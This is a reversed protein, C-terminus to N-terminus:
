AAYGHMRDRLRARRAASRKPLMAEHDDEMEEWLAERASPQPQPEPENCSSDSEDSLSEEPRKDVERSFSVRLPAGGRSYRRRPTRPQRLASALPAKVRNAGESRARPKEVEGPVRDVWEVRGLAGRDGDDGGLLAGLAAAAGAAAGAMALRLKEAVEGALNEEAKSEAGKGPQSAQSGGAAAPGGLLLSGLLQLPAEEGTAEARMRRRSCAPQEPPAKASSASQLQRAYERLLENAAGVDRGYLDLVRSKKEERSLPWDMSASSRRSMAAAM